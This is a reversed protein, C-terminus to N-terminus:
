PRLEVEHVRLFDAGPAPEHFLCLRDLVPPHAQNLTALQPALHTVLRGATTADCPGTLTLHFRFRELVHPYGYRDLLEVGRADLREPHRRARESATLPQRLDDLETVCRAALANLAPNRGAPVLALFGDMYVPVLPALPVAHLEAALAALRTRLAAPPVSPRFPAKLTAHLGYRRPEQTLAAFPGAQWGPPLPQALPMGRAEDRGLWQAGFRWWPSELAPAFYLATRGTASM